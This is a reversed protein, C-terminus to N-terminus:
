KSELQRVRADLEKVANILYGILGSYNVSKLGDTDTDVLWPLITELQQAIIGASPKANDAWNFEVGELNNVTDVSHKIPRINIKKNIDSLSNFIVSNLTGSSPNFYLETTAIYATSWSGSTTRSM